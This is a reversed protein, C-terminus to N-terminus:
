HSNPEDSEGNRVLYPHQAIRALERAIAKPPLVYDVCGAAIV